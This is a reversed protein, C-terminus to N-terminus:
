KHKDFREKYGHFADNSTWLSGATFELVSSVMQGTGPDKTEITVSNKTESIVKYRSVAKWTGMTATLNTQDFTLSMKGLMQAAADLQRDTMITHIRLYALTAEKNSKWTGILRENGAFASFSLLLLLFLSTLKKM